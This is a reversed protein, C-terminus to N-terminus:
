RSWRTMGDIGQAELHSVNDERPVSERRPSRPRRPVAVRATKEQFGHPPLEERKGVLDQEEGTMSRRRLHPNFLEVVRQQALLKSAPPAAPPVERPRTVPVHPGRDRGPVVISLSRAHLMLTERPFREDKRGYLADGVIPTGLRKMHVRLQHTRGTRPALLVYAYGGTEGTETPWARLVRYHTLATRGGEPVWTFRKRDRPDRALRDEVRGTPGPPIGLTVAVYRKRTLRDHFQRALFAHAEATKAAIIVGSTEKDLRHVIGPRPDDRPFRGLLARCHFLLGNLLTGSPNGSGPHVVLGQPKDIVIVEDNEFIVDLPIDEAVLDTPPADVYRLMVMDGQRVKRALRAPVGNVAAELIRGRAQSRSFLGLQESAYVDLRMGVDPDLQVRCELIHPTM